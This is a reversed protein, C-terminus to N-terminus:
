APFQIVQFALTNGIGIGPAAYSWFEIDSAITQIYLTADQLLFFNGLFNEPAFVYAKKPNLIDSKMTTVIPIGWLKEEEEIGEDYHRSAVDDGVSTAPLDIAEYYLEKTSLLKGIPQRRRVMAQFAKRFASSNFGTAATIQVAANLAALDDVTTIAKKDEQDSMDKVSNDSLIKRIDNQYTMLEFKNKTFRQSETKGFKVAYRKGRFWTRPGTGQFTVFTAVSDPEKEVIKKPQDTDEDRDIEDDRLLTPNIIERFFSDQRVRTRIFASGQDQAEKVRGEELKRLFNSNILQASVEQTETQYANM